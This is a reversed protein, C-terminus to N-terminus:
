KLYVKNILDKTEQHYVRLYRDLSVSAIYPLTPHIKIDKLSGSSGKFNLVMRFDLYKFVYLYEYM